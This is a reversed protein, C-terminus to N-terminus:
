RRRASRTRVLRHRRAGQPLPLVQDGGVLGSREELWDLPYLVVGEIQEAHPEPGDDGDRASRRSRTSGPSPGTSTSARARALAYKKIRADEGTGEVKAVSFASGLILHGDVISYTTATSRACRRAPPATARPTTSAATARAASAPRSCRRSILVVDDRSTRSRKKRNTTSRGTRSCRAASTRAATRSSRSARSSASCATTASSRPAGRSRARGRSGRHLDHRHVQGGPLRRAPRPRREQLEPGRLGLCRRSASRRSAHRARRDGRRPRPDRGRPVPRAPLARGGRDDAETAAATAAGLKSRARPPPEAESPGARDVPRPGLPRRLRARDRRRGRGRDLSVILGVLLLVIGSRSASRGAADAGSRAVQRRGGPSWRRREKREYRRSEFRRGAVTDVVYCKVCRARWSHRM